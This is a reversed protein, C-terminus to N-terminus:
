RLTTVRPRGIVEEMSTRTAREPEKEARQMSFINTTTSGSQTSSCGVIFSLAIVLVIGVISRFFISM